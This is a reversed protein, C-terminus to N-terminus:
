NMKIFKTCRINKESIIKLMYMGAPLDSVMIRGNSAVAPKILSGSLDYIECFANENQPDYCLVDRVPLPYVTVSFGHIENVGTPLMITTLATNTIVPANYDFYIAATEQITMGATLTTLPKIRFTFYGNSGPDNVSSPPLLVNGFHFLMKNEVPLYTIDVPHSYSLMEFTSAQLNGSIPVYVNIVFATDTGTNQFRVLYELYPPDTLQNTYIVSHNVSIDNPDYSTTVINVATDYNDAPVTDTAVPNIMASSVITDGSLLTSDATLYVNINGFGFPPLNLYPWTISDSTVSSPTVTSSDYTLSPDHYFLIDGSLTTTGANLYYINYAVTMGPRVPTLATIFIRLDNIPGNPQYAFDNLSDILNMAPFYASHSSPAPTYYSLAGSTVTFNGTDLVSVRYSGDIKSYAMRGTIQESIPIFRLDAEGADQILNSNLDAYTKGTILNYTDTLKVIWVDSAGHNGTVDVNTSQTFGAFVIQLDSSETISLVEEPGTGGYTKEWQIFGLSDLQVVWCDSGGYNNSVDGNSSNTKGALVISGNSRELVNPGGDNVSGGLCRHWVLAGAADIKAIYFDTYTSNHSGPIDTSRSDGSLLYGGDSTQIIKNAFDVENGGFCNSWLINGGTDLKAVWCDYDAIHGVVNSDSSNTWAAIAFNNDATYIISYAQDDGSGGLPKKSLINGNSNDLNILWCDNASGMNAYFDGDASWGNVFAAIGYPTECIARGYDRDSGGISREWLLTGVSDTKFIWVDVWGHNSSVDGDNSTTTGIVVYGGDSTQIIKRGVDNGTGGYTHQWQLVGAGDTKVIWVDDSDHLGTVQGDISSTHGTAAYGGDSTNAISRAWEFSSGGYCQQWLIEDQSYSNTFSFVSLLFLTTFFVRTSKQM